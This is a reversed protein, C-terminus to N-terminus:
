LARLILTDGRQTFELHKLVSMGMLVQNDAMGPNISAPVDRLDFPGFAM